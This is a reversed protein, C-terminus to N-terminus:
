GLIALYLIFTWKPPGSINCSLRRCSVKQYNGRLKMYLKRDSFKAKSGLEDMNMRAEEIYKGGKWAKKLV